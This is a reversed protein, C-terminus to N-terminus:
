NNYDDVFAIEGYSVNNATMLDYRQKFKNDNQVHLSKSSTSSKKSNKTNEIVINKLEETNIEESELQEIIENTVDIEEDLNIIRNIIYINQPPMPPMQVVESKKKSQEKNVNLSNYNYIIPQQTPKNITQKTQPTKKVIQPTKKVINNKKRIIQKAKQNNNANKITTTQKQCNKNCCDVSINPTFNININKAGDKIIIPNTKNIDYTGNITINQSSTDNNSTQKNNPKNSSNNVSPLVNTTNKEKKDKQEIQEIRTRVNDIQKDNTKVNIKINQKDNKENENKINTMDTKTSITIKADTTEDIKVKKITELNQGEINQPLSIQIKATNPEKTENENAFVKVNELALFFVISLLKTLFNM